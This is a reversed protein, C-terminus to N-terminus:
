VDTIRLLPDHLDLIAPSYKDTYNDTCKHENKSTQATNIIIIIIHDEYLQFEM